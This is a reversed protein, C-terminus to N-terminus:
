SSFVFPYTVVAHTGDPLEPFQMRFFQKTLCDDVAANDLTSSLVSARAVSGDAAITFSMRVRGALSPHRTLQRQYCYRISNLHRQVVEQVKAKDITGLVVPSSPTSLQGTAKDGLDASGSGYDADGSGLGYTGIDGIMEAGGGGPGNGGIGTWGNKGIAVTTRGGVRDVAQRLEDNMRNSTLGALSPAGTRFMALAGSSEVVERDKRIREAGGSKAKPVKKGKKGAKPETKDAKKPKVKPRPKEPTQMVVEIFHEHTEVVDVTPAPPAAWLLLGAFAGMVTASGMWALFPLDPQQRAATKRSAAVTQILFVSSGIGVVLRLGRSMRVEVDQGQRSATGEAELADLGLQEGDREAVVEWEPRLTCVFRDTSWSALEIRPEAVGTVTFDTRPLSEVESWLPPMWRLVHRSAAPVWALDVGLLRWRWGTQTGLSVGDVEPEYHRVDLLHDGFIQTVELVDPRNDDDGVQSTGLGFRMAFAVPDTTQDPRPETQTM